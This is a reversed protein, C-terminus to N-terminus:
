EHMLNIWELINKQAELEATTAFPDLRVAEAAMIATSFATDPVKDGDTDVLEDWGFAGNAFNLWAALLQIDLLEAMGTNGGPHLIKAAKEKTSADVVEDFVASMFGVISLYCDLTANDFKKTKGRYETQWYGQSRAQGSNGAIVVSVGDSGAGGDDDTATLSVAFTCADTWTHSQTDDVDRPDVDPSPLPDAAPPNVLYMTNTTSGDDWDWEMELDDSGPDTANGDFSLPVGIQAIFTPTGNVLITGTEDIAVTPDVNNVTLDFSASGEGGDSDTVTVTVAFTPDSDDGYPCTATVTGATVPTTSTINISGAKDLGGGVTHCTVTATHTDLTGPDTFHGTVLLDGGEDLSMSQAGVITVTPAVNEVVLDFSVDGDQGLEDSGTITVTQSQAPGDSTAYSWSWVGGGADVVSGISAALTVSGDDSAFTGTNTATQGEDVTVTANDATLVPPAATTQLAALLDIRPTTVNAGGSVYNIPVGTTQLRTLIDNPTFVQIAIINAGPAVGAAPAGAVGTGDGAAIGAVHTGHDCLNGTNNCLATDIDAANAATSSTASGPCLSFINNGPDETSYCAQSVIRGTLFPHDQDIGTDLIAVTWGSGDWGLAHVDDANIVPLSADLAPPSAIDPTVSVIGPARQLAELANENVEIALLPFNNYTRLVRSNASSGLTAAMGQVSAMGRVELIVRVKEGGPAAALAAALDNAPALQDETPPEAIEGCSALAIILFGLLFLPMRKLM